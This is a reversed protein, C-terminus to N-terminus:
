NQDRKEGKKKWDPSEVVTGDPGVVVEAKMGDKSLVAEYNMMSPVKTVAKTM